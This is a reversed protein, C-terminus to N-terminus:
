TEDAEFTEITYANLGDGQITGTVVSGDALTAECTYVAWGPYLTEVYDLMTVDVIDFAPTM